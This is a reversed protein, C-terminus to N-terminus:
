SSVSRDRARLVKTPGSLARLDRVLRGVALVGACWLLVVAVIGVLAVIELLTM